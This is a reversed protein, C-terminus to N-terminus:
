ILISLIIMVIGFKLFIENNIFCRNKSIKYLLDAKISEIFDNVCLKKENYYEFDFNRNECIELVSDCRKLQKM